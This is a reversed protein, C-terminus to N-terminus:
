MASEPGDAADDRVKARSVKKHLRKEKQASETLQKQLHRKM